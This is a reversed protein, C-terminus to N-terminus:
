SAMAVGDECCDLFVAWGSAWLLDMVMKRYRDYM